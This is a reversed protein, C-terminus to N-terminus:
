IDKQGYGLLESNEIPTKLPDVIGFSSVFPSCHEFHQDINDALASVYKSSLNHM